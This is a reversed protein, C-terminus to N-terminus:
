VQYQSSLGLSSLGNGVGPISTPLGGTMANLTSGIIM